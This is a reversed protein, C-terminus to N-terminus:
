SSRDVQITVTETKRASAEWPRRYEFELYDEGPERARFHFCQQASGGIVGEPVKWDTSELTVSSGNQPTRLEWSFGASPTGELCIEFQQGLRVRRFEAM